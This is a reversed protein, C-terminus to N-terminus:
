GGSTNIHEQKTRKTNWWRKWEDYSEKHRFGTIQQLANLAERRVSPMDDQLCEILPKIAARDRMRGLATVADRRTFPDSRKILVELQPRLATLRLIGAAYIGPQLQDWRRSDLPPLVFHKEIMPKGRPSGLRDLAYGLALLVGQDRKSDLTDALNVLSQLHVKLGLRAIGYLAEVRSPPLRDSRLVDMLFNGANRDGTRSVANILQIRGHADGKTKRYVTQIATSATPGLRGLEQALNCGTLRNCQQRGGMTRIIHTVKEDM